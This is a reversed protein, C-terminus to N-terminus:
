LEKSIDEFFARYPGAVGQVFSDVFKVEFAIQQETGRHPVPRLM